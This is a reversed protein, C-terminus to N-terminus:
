IILFFFIIICYEGRVCSKKFTMSRLRKSNCLLDLIIVEELESSIIFDPFFLHVILHDLFLYFINAIYITSDIIIM